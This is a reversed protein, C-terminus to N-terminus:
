QFKDLVKSLEKLVKKENILREKEMAKFGQFTMGDINRIWHDDYNVMDRVLKGNLRMSSLFDSSVLGKSVQVGLGIAVCFVLLWIGINRM